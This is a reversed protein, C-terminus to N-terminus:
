DKVQQLVILTSAADCPDRVISQDIEQFQSRTQEDLSLFRIEYSITDFVLIDAEHIWRLALEENWYGRKEVFEPDGGIRYYFQMNMQTPYIEINPLYLFLIPTPGEWYVLSGDPIISRLLKGNEEYYDPMNSGPCTAISSNKALIFTPSLLIGLCLLLLAAVCGYSCSKGKKHLISHVMRSVLLLLIGALFGAITPLIFEQTRISIHFRNLLVDWLAYPGNFIRGQSFSPLHVNMLAPAIERYLSLGIGTCLLVITISLIWQRTKSDLKITEKFVLPILTVGLPLYFSYYAPYSYLVNNEQIAYGFHLISLFIFSGALFLTKKQEKEKLFAGPFLLIFSLISSFIPIFFYRVSDFLVQTEYIWGYERELIANGLDGVAFSLDNFHALLDNFFTPFYPSWIVPYIRPWYPINLGIFVLAGVLIPLRSKKWSNEWLVYIITFLFLPLLNQRVMVMLASFVLGCVLQWQKQEKGLLFYLSWAILLSTVVQTMARSYYIIWAPSILYFAISATAWWTGALRKVTLWQGVLVLASLFIAFYRGSALGPEFLIQSIGLSYFSLPPKNTIPGYDEFPEYTGDLYWKGKLLYTGEDMVPEIIRAYHVSSFIYLILILISLAYPLISLITKKRNAAMTHMNYYRVSEDEPQM